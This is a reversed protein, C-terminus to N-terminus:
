KAGANILSEAEAALAEASAHRSDLVHRPDKWLALQFRRRNLSIWTPAGILPDEVRKRQQLRMRHVTPDSCVVEFWLLEAGTREALRKWQGRAEATDNVADIVVDLGNRLQPEAAAEVAAYAAHGTPQRKQEVGASVIAAELPDVGLLVAGLRSALAEATTSKGTGPLGALAILRAM